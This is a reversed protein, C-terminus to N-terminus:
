KMKIFINFLDKIRFRNGYHLILISYIRAALFAVFIITIFLSIISVIVESYSAFGTLLRGPMAFAASIPFIAVAKSMNGNPFLACFISTVFCAMLTLSIPLNATSIDEPKSATSGTIAAFFAFLLYGLLFYTFLIVINIFSFNLPAILNNVFSMDSSVFVQFSWVLVFGLFLLQLIGLVGMAITKGIVVISSTTSTILSEIVRSTKENVVSASVSYSYFFIAFYLIFSLAISIISANNLFSVDNLEQIDYSINNNILNVTNNSIGLNSLTKTNKINNLIGSILSADPDNYRSNQYAIYNFTIGENGEYIIVAAYLADENMQNKIEEISLKNDVVFNYNLQSLIYIDNGFIGDSDQFLVRPLAFKIHDELKEDESTQLQNLTHRLLSNEQSSFLKGSLIDEIPLSSLLMCIIVVLLAMIVNTIWFSKKKLVQQITYIFVICFNRM